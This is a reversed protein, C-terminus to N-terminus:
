LGVAHFVSVLVGRILLQASFALWDRLLASLCCLVVVVFSCLITSVLRFGALTMVSVFFNWEVSICALCDEDLWMGFGLSAALDRASDM